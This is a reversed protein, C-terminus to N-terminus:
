LYNHVEMHISPISGPDELLAALARVQQAMGQRRKEDAWGTEKM